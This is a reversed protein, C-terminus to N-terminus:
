EQEAVNCEGDGIFYQQTAQGKGWIANVYRYEHTYIDTCSANHKERM